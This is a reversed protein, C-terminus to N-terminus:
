TLISRCFDCFADTVSVGSQLEGAMTNLATGAISRETLFSIKHLVASGEPWLGDVLLMFLAFCLLMLAFVRLYRISNQRNHRIKDYKICYGM